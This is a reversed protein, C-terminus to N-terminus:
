RNREKKPLMGITRGADMLDVSGPYRQLAQRYLSQAETALGTRWLREIEDALQVEVEALGRLALHSTWDRQLVQHYLDFASDGSPNILAGSAHARQARALFPRASEARQSAALQKQLQQIARNHPNIVAAQQLLREAHRSDGANLRDTAQLHLQRAIQRLGAQAPVNDPDLQLVHRYHNM